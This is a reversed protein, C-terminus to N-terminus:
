IYSFRPPNLPQTRLSIRAETADDAAESAEAELGDAEFGDAEFEQTATAAPRTEERM